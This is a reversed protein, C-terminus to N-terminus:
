WSCMFNTELFRIRQAIASVVALFPLIEGRSDPLVCFTVNLFIILLYKELIEMTFWMIFARTTDKRLTINSSIASNSCPATDSLPRPSNVKTMSVKILTNHKFHHEDPHSCQVAWQWRNCARTDSSSSFWTHQEILENKIDTRWHTHKGRPNFRPNPLTTSKM